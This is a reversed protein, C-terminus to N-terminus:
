GGLGSRWSYLDFIESLQGVVGRLRCLSLFSRLFTNLKDFSAFYGSTIQLNNTYQMPLQKPEEKAAIYQNEPTQLV